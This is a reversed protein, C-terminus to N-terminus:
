IKLFANKINLANKDTENFIFKGNRRDIFYLLKDITNCMQCVSYKIISEVNPEDEFLAFLFSKEDKIHSENLEIDFIDQDGDIYTTIVNFNYMKTIRSM